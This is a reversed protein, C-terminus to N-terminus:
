NHKCERIGTEYIGPVHEAQKGKHIATIKHSLCSYHDYSTIIVIIVWLFAQIQNQNGLFSFCMKQTFVNM